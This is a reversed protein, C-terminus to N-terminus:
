LRSVQSARILVEDQDFTRELHQRYNQWWEQDLEDAMVEVVIIRDREVGAGSDWLGKVPSNVNLTVGGFRDLLTQEVAEIKHRADDVNFPLYIQILQSVSM